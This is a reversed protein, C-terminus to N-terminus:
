CATLDKATHNPMGEYLGVAMAEIDRRALGGYSTFGEKLILGVKIKEFLEKDKVGLVGGINVLADKKGSM